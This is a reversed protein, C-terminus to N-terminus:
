ESLGSLRCSKPENTIERRDTTRASLLYTDPRERDKTFTGRQATRRGATQVRWEAVLAEVHDPRGTTIEILQIFAV